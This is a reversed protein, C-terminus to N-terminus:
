AGITQWLLPLYTKSREDYLGFSFPLVTGPAIAAYYETSTTPLLDNPVSEVVRYSAPAPLGDFRVIGDGGSTAQAIQQGTGDFLTFEIGALPPEEDQRFGDQNLDNWVFPHISGSPGSTPTITPTLTPTPTPPIIVGFDVEL